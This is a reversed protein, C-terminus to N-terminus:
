IIQAGGTCLPLLGGEEAHSDPFQTLAFEESVSPPNVIFLNNWVTFPTSSSKVLPSPHASLASCAAESTVALAPKM